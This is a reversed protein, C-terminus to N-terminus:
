KNDGACLSYLPSPHSIVLRGFNLSPTSANAQMFFPDGPELKLNVAGGSMLSAQYFIREFCGNELCSKARRKGSPSAAAM